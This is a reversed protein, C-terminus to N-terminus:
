IHILSLFSFNGAIDITGTGKGNVTFITSGDPNQWNGRLTMEQGTNFVTCTTQMTVNSADVRFGGKQLNIAVLNLTGFDSHYGNTAGWTAGLDLYGSTNSTGLSFSVGYVPGTQDNHCNLYGDPIAFYGVTRDAERWDITGAVTLSKGNTITLTSGNNVTLEAISVDQSSITISGENYDVCFGNTPYGPSTLSM